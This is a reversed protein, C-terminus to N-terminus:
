AVESGMKIVNREILMEKYVHEIESAYATAFKWKKLNENSSEELAKAAEISDDYLKQAANLMDKCYIRHMVALALGSLLQGDTYDKIENYLNTKEQTKM